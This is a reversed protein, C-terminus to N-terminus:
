EKSTNEDKIVRRYIISIIYCILFVIIGWAAAKGFRQEEFAAGFINLSILNTATGPGGGTMTYVLTYQKFWWVSDLILVTILISRLGPITIHRFQNWKNAGDIMAAEYLDESIGQMGALIMTMVLPYGKWICALVIAPFALEATGLWSINASILGLSKLIANFIGYMPNLIWSFLLAIVTEPFLWPLMFIIRFIIRGKFERNLLVALVFGLIFHGIVVLLMFKFTLFLSSYFESKSFAEIYYKFGVFNWRTVLNTNFLSLYGSYIMPYIILALMAIVAPLVFFYGALKYKRTFKTLKSRNKFKVKM